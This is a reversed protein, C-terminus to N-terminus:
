KHARQDIRDHEWFSGAKKAAQPFHPRVHEKHPQCQPGLDIFQHFGGCVVDEQTIDRKYHHGNGVWIQDRPQDTAESAADKTKEVGSSRKDL